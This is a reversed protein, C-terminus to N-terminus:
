VKRRAVPLVTVVWTLVLAVGIMGGVSIVVASVGDTAPNLFPYPYWGTLGGRTLAYTLYVVPFLLWWALRKFAIKKRPRDILLDILGAAPLIYHLVINDWPVATFETTGQSSLLVTFGIGVLMIYVAVARRLTDLRHNVGLAVAVASALFVIFVIINTEITFYSLFNHPKFVGREVLTAIETVIASFGLFSLVLKYTILFLKHQMMHKYQLLFSDAM